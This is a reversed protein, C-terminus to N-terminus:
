FSILFVNHIQASEKILAMAKDSPISDLEFISLAAEGHVQRNLTLNAINVGDEGLITGLRGVIGPTDQNELILLKNELPIELDRQHIQVLRPQGNRGILTGAITYPNGDPCVAEVKILESYDSEVNSKVVEVEVGLQKLKYPANVDNTDGGSIQLLYGRQIARTLPMTDSQALKGFFSIKIKEVRKPTIQQLFTGLREGLTLYPKLLKLTSADVSPMNVANRIVGGRLVSTIAEAIEIGVNEQAEVTSAGLHPSLVVKPQDRLPHDEPLPENVFVDLGAAAVKGSKVAELLAEENIIGGRAVNFLRVGDKMKAFAKSDVMDRTEQTLPMHVTIFDAQEFAEDLEVQKVNLTKARTATLYPDYALVNMDFALARRAVEAGVRGMGLVALTKGALEVGSLIKRDWRGSQMSAYAQPLPRAGCLIHTFTLEATAITNGGPTNMVVIGRRTAEEIDINDVGVGARGVVKLSPAAEMVEATIQTESRVVIASADSVIELIKEPTSGYAEVVTLDDQSKFYEVGAPALKDAIVIKM